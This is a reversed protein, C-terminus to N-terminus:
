RTRLLRGRTWMRLWIFGTCASGDWKQLIWKLAARGDMGVDEAHIEKRRTLRCCDRRIWEGEHTGCQGGMEYEKTKRVQIVNQLSYLDCFKESFLKRWGRSLGVKRSWM